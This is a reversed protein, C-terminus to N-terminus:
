PKCKLIPNVSDLGRMHRKHSICSGTIALMGVTENCKENILSVLFLYGLTVTFFNFEKPTQHVCFLLYREPAWCFLVLVEVRQCVFLVM